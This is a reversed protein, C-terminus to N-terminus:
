GYLRHERIEDDINNFVSIFTPDWLPDDPLISPLKIPIVIQSNVSVQEMIPLDEHRHVEVRTQEGKGTGHSQFAEFYEIPNCKWSPKGNKGKEAQVNILGRQEAVKFADEFERPTAHVYSRLRAKTIGPNRRVRDAMKRVTTDFRDEPLIRLFQMTSHLFALAVRDAKQLASRSIRRSRLDDAACFQIALLPLYHRVLTTAFARLTAPIPTSQILSEYPEPVLTEDHVPHVWEGTGVSKPKGKILETKELEAAPALPEPFAKLWELFAKYVPRFDAEDDMSMAGLVVLDAGQSPHHAVLFRPLFGGSTLDPTEMGMLLDPQIEALITPAANEVKCRGSNITSLSVSLGDFAKVMKSLVAKQWSKADFYPQMEPIPLLGWPNRGLGLLFVKDSGEDITEHGLMRLVNEVCRTTTGKGTRSDSSLLIYANARHRSVPAAEQRGIRIRPTLIAGQLAMGAAIPILPNINPIVVGVAEILAGIPTDQYLARLEADTPPPPMRPPEPADVLQEQAHDDQKGSSAQRNEQPHNGYQRDGYGKAYLQKAAQSLDGNCELAAYLQLPSYGKSPELISSSTFSYFVNSDTMLTGSVGADKGPRTWHEGERGMHAYTWGHSQLLARVSSGDKAFADAASTGQWTGEQKLRSPEPLSAFIPADPVSGSLSRAAGLLTAREEVTLVPIVDFGAPTLFEYGPSPACLFYGGEGRTEILTVTAQFKGNREVAAIRKGKYSVKPKSVSIDGDIVDPCDRVITKTSLKQNGEVCGACRYIVHMGGSQSREKPLRNLLYPPILRAWAEYQEGGFDFDLLELNGSVAGCIIAIGNANEFLVPIQDNAVLMKQFTAWSLRAGTPARPSKDSPDAPIVSLNQARYKRAAVIIPNDQADKM